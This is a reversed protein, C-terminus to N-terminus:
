LIKGNVFGILKDILHSLTTFSRGFNQISGSGDGFIEVCLEGGNIDDWKNLLFLIAQQKTPAKLTDYNMAGRPLTKTGNIHLYETQDITAICPEDYGLKELEVAQDYSVFLDELLDM